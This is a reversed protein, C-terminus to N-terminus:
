AFVDSIVKGGTETLRQHRGNHLYTLSMDDLGVARLITAHLDRISYGQKVGLGFGLEDTTGVSHGGKVGGGAMWVTHAEPYHNRGSAGDQTPSRGFEGAWIVLTSELLGTRKLDKLLGAIPVDSEGARQGHNTAINDHADWGGGGCYLQIFRVNKQVLRRAILCQRGFNETQPRDLGYLAKTEASEERLDVVKPAERQMRAAQEYAAIRGELEADGFYRDKHEENLEELLRLRAEYAGATTKGSRKLNLFPAGKSRLVTGSYVAPLFANSWNPSGGPPNGGHSMVVFAPLNQNETGLGYTVWSGVAPHGQLNHGTNMEFTAPGHNGTQSYISHIFCIDDACSGVNAFVDSVFKGCQGYQKFGFPSRLLPRTNVTMGHKATLAPKYDWTDLHSPGGGNFIFIVSKAKAPLMPPRPALPSSEIPPRNARAEEALM